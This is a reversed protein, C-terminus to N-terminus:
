GKRDRPFEAELERVRGSLEEILEQARQVLDSHERKETDDTSRPGARRGDSEERGRQEERFGAVVARGGQAPENAIREDPAARASDDILWPNAGAAGEADRSGVV